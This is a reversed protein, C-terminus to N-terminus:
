GLKSFIANSIAYAASILVLGIVAAEIINKAKTVQETNGGATMWMFGSYLILVFFVVGVFSLALNIIDGILAAVSGKKAIATQNLKAAQAVTDAGYNDSSGRALAFNPLLLFSALFFAVLIKKIKTM